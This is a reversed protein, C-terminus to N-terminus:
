AGRPILRRGYLGFFVPRSRLRGAVGRNPSIDPSVMLLLHRSVAQVDLLEPECGQQCRIDFFEGSRDRGVDIRVKEGQRPGPGQVKLRAGIRSFHQCLYDTSNM